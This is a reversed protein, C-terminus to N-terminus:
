VRRRALARDDIEVGLGPASSPSLFADVVRCEHSAITGDFLEATALGHALGAAVGTGPLMQALHAAAAIGVPGDLASSLYVPLIDIVAQAARLGGVKAIKVTAGDCAEAAVAARAEDSGAVSEDAFVPVKAERRVESMGELTAVPQEALEIELPELERLSAIARETTWAGNADVRIRAEPGLAQRVAAVQALDGDVGVKLKFASFGREAQRCANDAVAQPEGAVLTANCEVPHAADAGLLSWAPAQSLKAALDLLALDVAALTQRSAGSRECSVALQTWDSPDLEAGELLPRCRQDLDRAIDTVGPGGRLSLPAAEGLGQLGDAHLRLLVLERRDLRGRATVYPERFPLAYPVVELRQIRV